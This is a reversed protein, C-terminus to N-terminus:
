DHTEEEDDERDEDTGHDCRRQISTSSRGVNRANVCAWKRVGSAVLKVRIIFGVVGDVAVVFAPAEALVARNTTYEMSSYM